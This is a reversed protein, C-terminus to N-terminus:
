NKAKRANAKTTPAHKAAVGAAMKKRNFDRIVRAVYQRTERYPPVGKYQDVRHPGANYAALAKQLDNNYRLLLESLYRTGGDVNADADFSDKVGLKSATGPMLQMLGQAGKPSVARPNFSSEAHIVSAILDTDIAHRKSAAAVAAQVDVLNNPANADPKSGPLAPSASASEDKQFGAIQDSKVEVYGSTRDANLYLRTNEGVSERAEHRIEYGNRLLALDAAHVSLACATVVLAVFKATKLLM